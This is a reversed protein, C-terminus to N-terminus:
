IGVAKYTWKGDDVMALIEGTSADMVYRENHRMVSFAHAMYMAEHLSYYAVGNRNTSVNYITFM